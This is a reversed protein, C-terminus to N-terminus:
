NIKLKYLESEEKKRSKKSSGCLGTFPSPTNVNIVRRQAALCLPVTRRTDLSGLHSGIM